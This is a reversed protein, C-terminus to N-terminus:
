VTTTVAGVLRVKSWMSTTSAVEMIIASVRMIAFEQLVAIMMSVMRTRKTVLVVMATVMVALEEANDVQIMVVTEVTMELAVVTDRMMAFAKVGAIM